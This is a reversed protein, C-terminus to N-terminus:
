GGVLARLKSKIAEPQNGTVSDVKKGGKFFLITPVSMIGFRAALDGEDDVDVKFVAAKGAFETAIKDLHPALSQCPGCWTAGFDVVVPMTAAVVERDWDATKLSKAAGM